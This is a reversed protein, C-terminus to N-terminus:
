LWAPDCWEEMVERPVHNMKMKEVLKKLKGVREFQKTDYNYKFIPNTIPTVGNEYGLLETVELVRRVGKDNKQNVILDVFKGVQSAAIDNNGCLQMMRTAGDAASNAHLTLATFQGANMAKLTEQAMEEDRVEGIFVWKPNQRLSMKVLRAIGYRRAAKEHDKAVFQKIHPYHAYQKKNKLLMEASDEITCIGTIPDLYLPIRILQSTKGSNVSGIILTNPGCPYIMEFFEIMEYSLNGYAVCDEDSYVDPPFKRISIIPSDLSVGGLKQDLVVNIRFGKYNSDIIPESATLTKGMPTLMKAITRYIHDNDQFQIEKKHVVNGSEEVVVENPSMIEISSIKPNDLIDQLVGLETIEKQVNVTLVNLDTTFGKHLNAEKIYDAIIHRVRARATEDILANVFDDNHHDRLYYQVTKLLQEFRQHDSLNVDSPLGSIKGVEYRIYDLPNIMGVTTM